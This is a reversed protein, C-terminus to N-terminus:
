DDPIGKAWFAQQAKGEHSCPPCIGQGSGDGNPYISAGDKWEYGAFELGCLPCPLFFYGLLKALAKRAPKLAELVERETM